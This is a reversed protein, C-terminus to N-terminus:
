SGSAGRDDVQQVVTRLAHRDIRQGAEKGPLWRSLTRRICGHNQRREVRTSGDLFLTKFHNDVTPIPRRRQTGQGLADFTHLPHQQSEGQADRIWFGIRQCQRRVIQWSTGREIRHSLLEEPCRTVVRGARVLVDGKHSGVPDVFDRCAHRQQNMLSSASGVESWRDITAKSLALRQTEIQTATIGIAIWDPVEAVIQGFSRGHM